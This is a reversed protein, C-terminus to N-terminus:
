KKELAGNAFERLLMRATAGADAGIQTSTTPVVGLYSLHVMEDSVTYVGVHTDGTEEDYHTIVHGSM